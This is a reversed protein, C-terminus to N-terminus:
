CCSIIVFAKKPIKMPPALKLRQSSNMQVPSHDGATDKTVTKKKAETKTRAKVGADIAVTKRVPKAKLKTTSKRKATVTAKSATTKKAEAKARPKLPSKARISTPRSSQSGLEPLDESSESSEEKRRGFTIM